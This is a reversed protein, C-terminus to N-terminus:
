VIFCDTDIYRLKPKEYKQKVYDYLVKYMLTKSFELM